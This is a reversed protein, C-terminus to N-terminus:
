DIAHLHEELSRKVATLRNMLRFLFAYLMTFSVMATVLTIIMPTDMNIKRDINIITDPHLSDTIRPAVFIFFPLTLMAVVLYSSGITSKSGGLAGRLCFYAIYILLIFVISTQRPDWNWYSGWTLRAWLSGTIVAMITFALGVAASNSALEVLDSRSWKRVTIHLISLVGSITFALSAVWALPVHFYLIRSYDGLIEASPALLFAMVITIPMLLYVSHTLAGTIKM